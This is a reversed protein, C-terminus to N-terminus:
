AGTRGRIFLGRRDTGWVERTSPLHLHRRMRLAVFRTGIFGQWCIIHDEERAGKMGGDKPRDGLVERQGERAAAMRLPAHSGWGLGLRRRELPGGPRGATFMVYDGSSSSGGHAM